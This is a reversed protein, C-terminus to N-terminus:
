RVRADLPELHLLAAQGATTLKWLRWRSGKSWWPGVAAVLMSYMM